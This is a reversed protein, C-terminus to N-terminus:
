QTPKSILPPNPSSSRYKLISFTSKTNLTPTLSAPEVRCLLPLLHIRTAPNLQTSPKQGTRSVPRSQHQKIKMKRARTRNRTLLSSAGLAARTRRAPREHSQQTALCDDRQKRAALSEPRFEGPRVTSPQFALFVGGSPLGHWDFTQINAACSM